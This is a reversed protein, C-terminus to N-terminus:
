STHQRHESRAAHDHLYADGLKVTQEYEPEQRRDLYVHADVSPEHLAPLREGNSYCSMRAGLALKGVDSAEPWVVPEVDLTPRYLATSLEREDLEIAPMDSALAAPEDLEIVHAIETSLKDTEPATVFYATMSVALALGASLILHKV